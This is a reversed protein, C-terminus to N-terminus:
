FAIFVNVLIISSLTQDCSEISGNNRVFLSRKEFKIYIHVAKKNTVVIGNQQHKITLYNKLMRSSGLGGEYYLIHLIYNTEILL